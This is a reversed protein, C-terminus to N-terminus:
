QQESEILGRAHKGTVPSLGGKTLVKTHAPGAKCTGSQCGGPRKIPQDANHQQVVINVPAERAQRWAQQTSRKAKSLMNDHAHM